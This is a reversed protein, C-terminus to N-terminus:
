GYYGIQLYSVRDIDPRKNVFVWIRGRSAVVTLLGLSLLPTVAPAIDPAIAPTIDAAASCYHLSPPSSVSRHLLSVLAVVSHCWLLVLAVVSRCCSHCHLSILLSLLLSLTAVDSAVVASVSCYFPCCLLLPTVASCYRLSMATVASCCRLSLPPLILLM